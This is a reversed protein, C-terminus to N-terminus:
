RGTLAESAPAFALLPIDLEDRGSAPLREFLRGLEYAFYGVLPGADRALAPLRDIAVDADALTRADILAKGSNGVPWRTMSVRDYVSAGDTLALM